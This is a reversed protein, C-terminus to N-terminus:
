YKNLESIAHNIIESAEKFEMYPSLRKVLRTLRKSENQIILSIDDETFEKVKKYQIDSGRSIIEYAKLEIKEDNPKVTVINIHRILYKAQELRYRTSADSENWNFHNHLVSTSEKAKEVVYFPTIKGNKLQIKNLESIVDEIKESRLPSVFGDVWGYKKKKNIKLDSKM